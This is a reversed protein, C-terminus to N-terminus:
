PLRRFGGAADARGTRHCQYCASSNYSYGKEDKHDSDVKAKNSHAHCLICEFARYNGPNVHCDGCGTWRGRHTGSYIPFYRGDHDFSAPRWASTNHCGQCQTPFGASRHNPNGTRDYDDRHCAYCDSPTGTYQGGAHCRACDVRAHAGTLPFRTAAHDFKAPRWGSTTHCSECTTPFRGAVHNPNAAAAYTGQHCSYCASSTGQYVGGV